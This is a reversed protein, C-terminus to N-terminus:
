WEKELVSKVNKPVYEMILFIYKLKEMSEAPVVIDLLM